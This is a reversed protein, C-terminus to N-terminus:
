NVAKFEAIKLIGDGVTFNLPIGGNGARAIVSKETFQTKRDRPKLESFSNEIQGTRLVNAEVQANLNLPLYVNLTGRSLQIDAFRGRWNRTPIMVDVAGSGFVAQVAGGELIMKANSNVFNIRLNGDVGALSFQGVGGDINLDCYRPVKLQYDIKFPMGLLHRPFKKATKKMYNKDHVGVSMIRLHNFSEDMVFGNVEALQALDAETAAQMEIEASVEIENKNWGEISISGFPAGIITVTGGAGFDITENKYSTRKLLTQGSAILSSTLLLIVLAIKKSKM